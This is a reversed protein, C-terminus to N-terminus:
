HRGEWTIPQWGKLRGLRGSGLFDKFAVEEPSLTMGYEGPSNKAQQAEQRSWPTGLLLREKECNAGEQEAGRGGNAGGWRGEGAWRITILFPWRLGRVWCHCHCSADGHQWPLSLLRRLLLYTCPCSRNWGQLLPLDPRGVSISCLSLALASWDSGTLKM